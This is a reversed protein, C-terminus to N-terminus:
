SLLYVDDCDDFVVDLSFIQFLFLLMQFLTPHKKEIKLCIHDSLNMSLVLAKNKDSKFNIASSYTSFHIFCHM